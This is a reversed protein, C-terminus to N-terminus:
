LPGAKVEADPEAAAIRVALAEADARSGAEAHIRRKVWEGTSYMWWGREGPFRIRVTRVRGASGRSV